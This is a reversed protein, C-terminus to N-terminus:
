NGDEEEPALETVRVEADAILARCQEILKSAAQYKAISEELTLDGSELASVIERINQLADEFSDNGAAPDNGTNIM